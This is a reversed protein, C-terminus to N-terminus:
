SHRKLDPLRRIDVELEQASIERGRLETAIHARKLERLERYSDDLYQPSTMLTSPDYYPSDQIQGHEQAAFIGITHNLVLYSQENLPNIM